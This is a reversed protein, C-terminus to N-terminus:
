KEPLSEPPRGQGDPGSVAAAMTFDITHWRTDFDWIKLFTMVNKFKEPLRQKALQARIKVTYRHDPKLLSLSAVSLDHVQVMAELAAELDPYTVGVLDHETLELNYEQKLTEFHLTHMFSRSAVQVTKNNQHEHLEVFFAFTLPIGNTIGQEMEPSLAGQLRFYLLLDTQSNVVFTEAITPRDAAWAQNSGLAVLVFFAYLWVHRWGPWRM